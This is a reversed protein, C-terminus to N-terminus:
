MTSIRAYRVVDNQIAHIMGTAEGRRSNGFSGIADRLILLSQKFLPPDGSMMRIRDYREIDKAVAGFQREVFVAALFAVGGFMLGRYM